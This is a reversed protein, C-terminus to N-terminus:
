WTWRRQRESWPPTTTGEATRGGTLRLTGLSESEAKDLKEAASKFSGTVVGNWFAYTKPLFGKMGKPESSYFRVAEAHWEHKDTIAYKVAPHVKDGQKSPRFEENAADAAAKFAERDWGM